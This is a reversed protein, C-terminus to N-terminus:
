VTVSVPTSTTANGADRARATLTHSGNPTTTTNWTVAYPASTDEAGLNAGDLTFQVGQVGVDDSATASVSVSGSVTAGATPATVAVTPPNPDAPPPAVPTNMDTQIEAQTLARGYIRADDIRGIFESSSSPRRGITVNAASDQQTATVAGTLQGNDLQGNLYVDLTSSAANYVGTVHYWTNAQLTTAGFRFMRAGSGTTLKFGIRRPGTDVTTDLQWGVEVGNRKSIIAADDFPFATSYIWASATMSGTLQLPTPNGLNVFDNVGDLQVANGNRGVGWGAGNTLTGTIANGSADAASTGSGEDFAYGAVLGPTAASTPLAFVLLGLGLCALGLAITTSTGFGGRRLRPKGRVGV